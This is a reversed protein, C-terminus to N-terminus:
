SQDNPGFVVVRPGAGSSPGRLVRILFAVAGLWIFEGFGIAIWGITILFLGRFLGGFFGYHIMAGIWLPFWAVFWSVFPAVFVAAARRRWGLYVGFAATVGLGVWSMTVRSAWRTEFLFFVVAMATAWLLMSATVNGRSRERVQFVVGSM